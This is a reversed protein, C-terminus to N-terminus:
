DPQSFRLRRVFYIATGIMVLGSFAIVFLSLPPQENAAQKRDRVVKDIYDDPGSAAADNTSAHAMIRPVADPAAVNPPAAAQDNTQLLTGTEQVSQDAAKGEDSSQTTASTASADDQTPPAALDIQSEQNAKSTAVEQVISGVPAADAAPPSVTDDDTSDSPRTPGVVSPTPQGSGKTPREPTQQAPTGIARLYWCKRHAPWDLRYYWWSGDPAPSNPSALCDEARASSTPVGASLVALALTAVVLISGALSSPM